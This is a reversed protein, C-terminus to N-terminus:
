EGVLHRLLNLEDTLATVQTKLRRGASRETSLQQKTQKLESQLARITEDRDAVKQELVCVREEAAALSRGQSAVTASLSEIASKLANVSTRVGEVSTVAGDTLISSIPSLVRARRQPNRVLAVAAATLLVGIASLAGIM